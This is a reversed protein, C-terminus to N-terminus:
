LFVLTFDMKLHNVKDIPKGFIDIPKNKNICNCTYLSTYIHSIYHMIIIGIEKINYSFHPTQTNRDNTPHITPRLNVRLLVIRFAFVETQMRFRYTLEM